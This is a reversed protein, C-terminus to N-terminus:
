LVRIKKSQMALRALELAPQYDFYARSGNGGVFIIADLEEICKIADNLTMGQKVKMGLKGIAMDTTKSAITCLIGAKELVAKPEQLEEDRFDQQAIIFLAKTM